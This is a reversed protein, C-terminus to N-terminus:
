TDAPTGQHYHLQWGLPTRRWVSMRLAAHRHTGDVAVEHSAFHLLAVDDALREVRHDCAVVPPLPARDALFDIVRQRAYRTGSRGVEHFEPHLLRELRERTCTAGPHHLETELATLTALLDDM